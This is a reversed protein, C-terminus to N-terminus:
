PNRHLWCLDIDQWNSLNEVCHTVSCPGDALSSVGHAANFVVTLGNAEASKSPLAAIASAPYYNMAEPEDIIFSSSNMRRQRRVMQMGNADTMWAGDSEILTEM